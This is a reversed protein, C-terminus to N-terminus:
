KETMRTRTTSRRPAINANSKTKAMCKWELIDHSALMDEYSHNGFVAGYKFTVTGSM